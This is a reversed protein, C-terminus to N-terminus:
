TKGNLEAIRRKLTPMISSISPDSDKSLEELTGWAHLSKAPLRQIVVYESYVPATTPIVMCMSTCVMTMESRTGTQLNYHRASYSQHNATFEFQTVITASKLLRDIEAPTADRSLGSIQSRQLPVPTACASLTLAVAIIVTSTRVAM